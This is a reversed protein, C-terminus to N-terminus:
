DNVVVNDTIIERKLQVLDNMVPKWQEIENNRVFYDFYGNKLIQLTIYDDLKTTGFFSSYQLEITELKQMLDRTTM